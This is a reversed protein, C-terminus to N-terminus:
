LYSSVLGIPEPSAARGEAYTAEQLGGGRGCEILGDPPDPSM